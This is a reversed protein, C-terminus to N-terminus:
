HLRFSAGVRGFSTPSLLEVGSIPPDPPYYYPMETVPMFYVEGARQLEPQLRGDYRPISVANRPFVHWGIEEPHDSLAGANIAPHHAQHLWDEELVSIHQSLGEPWLACM